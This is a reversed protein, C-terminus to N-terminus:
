QSSIVEFIVVVQGAIDTIRLGALGNRANLDRQRLITYPRLAIGEPAESHLYLHRILRADLQHGTLGAILGM